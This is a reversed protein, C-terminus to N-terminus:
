FRGNIERIKEDRWLQYEDGIITSNALSNSSLRRTPETRLKNNSCVRIPSLGFKQEFNRRNNEKDLSTDALEYGDILSLAGQSSINSLNASRLPSMRSCSSYLTSGDARSDCRSAVNTINSLTPGLPSNLPQLLTGGFRRVSSNSVEPPRVPSEFYSLPNALSTSTRSTSDIQKKKELHGGQQMHSSLNRKSSLTPSINRRSDKVVRTPSRNRIPSVRASGLTSSKAPSAPRAGFPKSNRARGAFKPGQNMSESEIVLVKEFLDQGGASIPRRGQSLEQNNFSVIEKKLSEIVRPMTKHIRKRIKEENLLIKCSNKSLLRSSDKSSEVLFKQDDLLQNLQSYLSLVAEKSAYEQKLKDVEAEHENLVMEKDDNDENVDYDCYKFERRQQESYFLALQLSDIEKRVDVIFSEIFESRKIYLRNLEMKLNTLCLDTLSSNADLFQQMYDRSEGLKEWLLVCAKSFHDWKKQKADTLSKLTIALKTVFNIHQDMLGFERPNTEIFRLTEVDFYGENKEKEESIDQMKQISIVDLETLSLADIYQLCKGVVDKMSNTRRQIEEETWEVEKALNQVTDTTIKTIKLSRIVRVIKYNVDRLKEMGTDLEITSHEEQEPLKSGQSKRPSSIIFAFEDDARSQSLGICSEPKYNRNTLKLSKLTEDFEDLLKAQEEAEQKNPLSKLLAMNSNTPWCEGIAEINEWLVVNHENFKRFVKVFAKLVELFLSNLKTKSQLLSLKSQHSIMYEYQEQAAFDDKPLTHPFNFPSNNYFSSHMMNQYSNMKQLMDEKYGENILKDDDFVIGRSSLNLTREGMNDNLMALIIRIQQRLWECENQINNKERQLNQTFLTITDQIVHFIEAKKEGIEQESYGILRYISNLEQITQNVKTTIIDFQQDTNLTSRSSDHLTSESDMMDIQRTKHSPTRVDEGEIPSVTSILTNM